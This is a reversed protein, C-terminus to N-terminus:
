SERVTVPLGRFRECTHKKGSCTCRKEGRLAENAELLEDESREGWRAAAETIALDNLLQQNELQLTDREAQMHTLRNYLDDHAAKWAEAEAHLRDNEAYLNATVEREEKTAM